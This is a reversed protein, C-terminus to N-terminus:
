RYDIIQSHYLLNGDNFIFTINIEEAIPNKRLCVHLKRTHLNTLGELAHCKLTSDEGLFDLFGYIGTSLKFDGFAGTIRM